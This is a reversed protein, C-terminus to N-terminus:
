ASAGYTNTYYGVTVPILWANKINHYVVTYDVWWIRDTM